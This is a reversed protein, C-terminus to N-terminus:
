LFLYGWAKSNKLGGTRVFREINGVVLQRVLSQICKGVCISIESTEYFSKSMSVSPLAREDDDHGVVQSTIRLSDAVKIEASILNRQEHNTTSQLTMLVDIYNTRLLIYRSRQKGLQANVM